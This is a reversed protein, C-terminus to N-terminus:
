YAISKWAGLRRLQPSTDADTSSRFMGMGLRAACPPHERVWRFANCWFESSRCSSSPRPCDGIVSLRRTTLEIGVRSVMKEDASESPALYNFLPATAATRNFRNGDFAIREVFFLSPEALQPISVLRDFQGRKILSCDIQQEGIHSHRSVGTLLQRCPKVM